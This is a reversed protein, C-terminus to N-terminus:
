GRNPDVAGPLPQVVYEELGENAQLKAKFGPSYTIDGLSRAGATVKGNQHLTQPYWQDGPLGANLHLRYFAGDVGPYSVEEFHISEAEITTVGTQDNWSVIVQFTQLAIADRLVEDVAKFRLTDNQAAGDQADLIHVVSDTRDTLADLLDDGSGGVLRDAGNRGILTDNGEDGFLQDACDTGVIRDNGAGGHVTVGVPLGGSFDYSDDGSTGWWVVSRLGTFTRSTSDWTVTLSGDENVHPMVNPADTAFVLLDGHEFVWGTPLATPDTPQPEPEPCPVLNPDPVLRNWYGQNDELVADIIVGNADKEVGVEDVWGCGPDVYDKGHGPYIRDAGEEGWILDDKCGGFLVDDGEEGTMLTVANRPARVTNDLYGAWIWAKDVDLNTMDIEAPGFYGAVAIESIRYPAEFFDNRSPGVNPRNEVTLDALGDQDADGFTFKGHGEVSVWADTVIGTAEARIWVRGWDVSLLRREELGEFRLKRDGFRVSQPEAARVQPRVVGSAGVSIDRQKKVDFVKWSM